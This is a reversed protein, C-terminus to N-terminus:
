TTPAHAAVPEASVLICQRPYGPGSWRQEFEEIPLIADDTYQLVVRGRLFGVLPSFHGFGGSGTLYVIAPRRRVLRRLEDLGVAPEIPIGVRRARTYCQAERPEIAPDPDTHFTVWLGFEHLALALGIGYCGDRETHRCARIIRSAGVRKGLQRLVLWVSM